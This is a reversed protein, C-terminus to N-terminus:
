PMTIDSGSYCTLWTHLSIRNLYGFLHQFNKKFIFLYLKHCPNGARGRHRERNIQLKFIHEELQQNENEVVMISSDQAPHSSKMGSSLLSSNCADEHKFLITDRLQVFAANSVDKKGQGTSLQPDARSWHTLRLRFTM